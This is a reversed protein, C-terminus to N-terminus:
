GAGHKPAITFLTAGDRARVHYPGPLAYLELARRLGAERERLFFPDSSGGDAIRAHHHGPTTNRGHCRYVYLYGADQFGAIPVARAVLGRLVNDEGSHADAGTEPYRFRSDRVALMSGPLMGQEGEVGFRRWDVWYLIRDKAFYQLHDTLFCAEAGQARMAAYQASLREPHYLDDDDWQCVYDGRAAELSINRLAGLTAKPDDVTVLRIDDRGLAGLHDDIAQRYRAGAATVIVLERNPYTQALYCGIAEKLLVLRDATVTLCSILPLTM